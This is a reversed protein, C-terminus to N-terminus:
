TFGNEDSTPVLGSRYDIHQVELTVPNNKDGGHKVETKRGGTEKALDDLAGRFQEFIAANFRVIEVKEKDVAKVDRLWVNPYPTIPEIVMPEGDIMITRESEAKEYIQRELFLSLRKLKNVREFDLALGAEFEQRRRENRERELGVDYESAREAWDHKASWEFLTGESTTVAQNRKAKSYKQALKRLSRGAGMRLYDNCAQAARDTEGDKREGALLEIM